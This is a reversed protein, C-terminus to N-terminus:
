TPKKEGGQQTNCRIANATADSHHRCATSSAVGTGKCVLDASHLNAPALGTHGQYQPTGGWSTTM